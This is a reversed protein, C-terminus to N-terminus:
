DPMISSAVIAPLRPETRGLGVLRVVQRRGAAILIYLRSTQAAAHDEAIKEADTHEFFSKTFADYDVDPLALSCTQVPTGNAIAKTIGIVTGASLGDQADTVLWARVASPRAVPALDAFAAEPFPTWGRDKAVASTREFNPGEALCVRNFQEFAVEADSWPRAPGTTVGLVITTVVAIRRRM